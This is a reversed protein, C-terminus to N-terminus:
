KTPRSVYLNPYDTCIGTFDTRNIVETEGRLNIITNPTKVDVYSWIFNKSTITYKDSEHWFYNFDTDRLRILCEDNKCHIWLFDSRNKLWEYDVMHVGYDHGLFFKNSIFWLDIEVDFGLNLANEIYDISNELDILPGNLNGRHSIIRM